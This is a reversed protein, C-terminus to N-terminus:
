TKTELTITQTGHLTYKETYSENTNSLESFWINLSSSFAADNNSITLFRTVRPFSIALTSSVPAISSTVWPLASSQLEASYNQGPQINNYPM